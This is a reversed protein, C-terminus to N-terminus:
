VIQCPQFLLVFLFVCLIRMEVKRVQWKDYVVSIGTNSLSSPVPGFALLCVNVSLWVSFNAGVFKESQTETKIPLQKPTNQLLKCFSINGSQYFFFFFFLQFEGLVATFTFTHRHSCPPIAYLSHCIDTLIQLLLPRVWPKCVWYHVLQIHHYEYSKASSLKHLFTSPSDVSSIVRIYSFHANM